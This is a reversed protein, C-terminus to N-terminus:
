SSFGNAIDTYEHYIRLAETMASKLSTERSEHFLVVESYDKLKKSHSRKVQVTFSFDGNQYDKVSVFDLDRNTQNNGIYLYRSWTSHVEETFLTAVTNM